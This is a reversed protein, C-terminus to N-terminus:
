RTGGGRGGDPKPWDKGGKPPKGKTPKGKM